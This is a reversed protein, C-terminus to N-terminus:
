GRSNGDDEPEIEASGDISRDRIKWFATPGAPGHPDYDKDFWTGVVGRQSRLGGVQIGESRWREDGGHFVSITQWRVEGESTLRVSGKIGSNANPDWAADVSTSTGSFHVVPLASNDFRGPANVETVHIDMTIHRIAEETNLAARPKDSPVKMAETTFNYHYLDNYDLFCVIRSWEGSVNYPDKSELPIDPEMLLTSWYDHKNQARESIVGELPEAWPPRFRTLFMRCCLGSNYGLVIMLSEIMEWDVRMSGDDRFPGWKTNDSYNRLDYIRSRAYPHTSLVRRGVNSSPIGFLSHLKASLQRSEYDNAPKQTPKGAREFLSSRCMFADHNQTIHQFLQAVLQQNRSNGFEDTSGTAILSDVTSAVFEFEDRKLDNNASQLVKQCRVLRQLTEVWVPEPHEPRQRPDDFNKLYQAKYLRTNKKIFDNFGKSTQACAALDEPNVDELIRILVDYCQDLLETM